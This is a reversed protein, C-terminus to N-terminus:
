FVGYCRDFERHFGPLDWCPGIYYYYYYYYDYYYYYCYYYYYYYNMILLLLLLLLLLLPLLLLLLILILSLLLLLLLLFLLVIILITIICTELRLNGKLSEPAKFVSSLVLPCMGRRLTRTRLGSGFIHEKDRGKQSLRLCQMVPLTSPKRALSSDLLRLIPAKIILIPNQPM